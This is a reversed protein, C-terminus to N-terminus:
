INRYLEMRTLVYQLYNKTEQPVNKILKRYVEEPTMSNVARITRKISYTGTLAKAVNGVGTNYAAICCYLRSRYNKIGKFYYHFLLYFYTTGIMINNKGNYLYTPSLLQPTGYLIKTADKGATQPVIQMLGYAPIPSRALPNFHSETHIIAFVLAPSLRRKEAWEEVIPKYQRAKIILYNSPLKIRVTYVKKRSSNRKKLIRTKLPANKLLLEVKKVVEKRTPTKKFFVPTLIKEREVKGTQLNKFTKRLRSEVRNILQDKKLATVKDEILLTELAKKIEKKAKKRNRTIVSIEIEGKSFDVLKRIKFDSSYEVWKKRDTVLAKGWVKMIQKKYKEFEELYIKKYEAFEKELKAKYSKFEQQRTKLFQQFEQNQANSQSIQFICVFIILLLLIRKM